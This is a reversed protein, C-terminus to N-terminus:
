CGSLIDKWGEYIMVMALTDLECYKLLAQSIEKREYDSMETFQMRMYATTAAGGDKLQNYTDLLLFEKEEFDAFMEPLLSYPDEVRGDKFRIWTWDKFNLSPIGGEAGYIPQSYKEQLFKSSNLIAPLVQKISNSGNTAPDYYYRKVLEWMDVM